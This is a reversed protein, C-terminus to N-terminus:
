SAMGDRLSCGLKEVNAVLDAVIGDDIQEKTLTADGQKISLSISISKNGEGLKVPDKFIDTIRVNEINKNKLAAKVVLGAELNLPAIFSLDRKVSQLIREEYAAKSKKPEPLNVLYLEAFFVNLRKVDFSNQLYLPHAQGIIGIVNKGLSIKYSNFPNFVDQAADTQRELLEFNLSQEKIGFVNLMISVLYQKADAIQYYAQKTFPSALTKIGSLVFAANQLQLNFDYFCTGIEFLKLDEEGFSKNLAINKILGPILSDRMTKLSPNIPNAVNIAVSGKHKYNFKAFDQEKFFSYNVCENFGFIAFNQRINAATNYSLIATADRLYNKGELSLAIPKINDYGISIALEEAIDHEKTIDHRYAPIKLSLTGNNAATPEMSLLQLKTLLDSADLQLGLKTSLYQASVDLPRPDQLNEDEFIFAAEVAGGCYQTIYSALLLACQKTFAPNTGREFRYCSDSSLGSLRSSLTIAEQTFFASEIIIESTQESVACDAGGMIGSLALINKCDADTLVLCGAKIAVEQGAKGGIPNFSPEGGDKVETLLLNSPMKAADFVHCPQGYFMMLYNSIDVLFNKSAIGVVSLADSLWSPSKCNQVGKIKILNIAKCNASEIRLNIKPLADPNFSAVSLLNAYNLPKLQGYNYSALARAVGYISACDGRNPTITIDIIKPEINLYNIYKDGIKHTDDLETIGDAEGGLNLESASCIMGCSEVGRINAKKIVFNDRPIFTGIRAFVVHLGEKVNAAGCVVQLIAGSGDDVKCLNLKASEPHRVCSLVKAVVFPALIAANDKVDEVELGIKTLAAILEDDSLSTSLFHKLQNIGFKM